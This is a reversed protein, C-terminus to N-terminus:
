TALSRFLASRVLLEHYTGQDAILGDDIVLIQDADRVTSIRHAVAILTRGSKFEDMASVFAAETASDLASTGEDLVLVAPERYLARAIAVRQRQGGSLRIGREGVTTDLGNPLDAIVDDLQAHHLSRILQEDDIDDPHAGFAINARLTGDILFVQQSVVGLQRWWWSPREDLQRGDVTITGSSPQLLGILLDVLTSKGGGTPGCIGWFQGRYISLDIDRLAPPGEDTPDFSFSMSQIQIRGFHDPSDATTPASTPRRWARAAVQDTVLDDVIASSFRLDNIGGVIKQLSPQMRLGAYAFLGLTPLLADLDLDSSIAVILIGVITLVLATEIMARPIERLSRSLYHTRALEFRRSLHRRAFVEEKDLLVVDRIGGLSEQVASISATRASQAERSLRELRPQISHQLIWVTPGLVVLALVTAQPSAILLVAALGVVIILEASIEVLPRLVSQGFEQTADFTNRILEASSRRTHERYPMALYNRLLEDALLAAANSVIRHQTYSRAALAVFRIIFLSAVMASAWLLLRNDSLGTASELNGLLPMVPSTQRTAVLQLLLFISAAAVMELGAVLVAVSLLLAWRWRRRPGLLIRVGTVMTAVGSVSAESDLQGHAAGLTRRKSQDPSRQRM